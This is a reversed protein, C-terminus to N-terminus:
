FKFGGSSRFSIRPDLDMLVQAPDTTFGNINPKENTKISDLPRRLSARATKPAEIQNL